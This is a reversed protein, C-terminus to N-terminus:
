DGWIVIKGDVYHWYDGTTTPENERYFYITAKDTMNYINPISDTNEIRYYEDSTGHYFISEISSCDRFSDSEIRRLGSGLVITKLSSCGEFASNSIKEINDPIVITELSTCGQFASNAINNLGAGIKIDGLNACLAFALLGIETVDDAIVYAGTKGAPYCLLATKDQNFLIGDDSKFHQNNENVYINELASCGYFSTSDISEVNEPITISTLSTCNRFAAGKIRTVSNPINISELSSCGLFLGGVITTIDCMLDISVLSSCGSFARDGIETVNSPIVLSELSECGSFASDGIKTVSSPIILSELSECSAFASAGIETVSNPISVSALSKCGIFSNEKISTITNPITVNKVGPSARYIYTGEFADQYYIVGDIAFLHPNEPDITISELSVCGSFAADSIEHVNKGISISELNVCNYFAWYPITTLPDPLAIAKIPCEFFCFQGISTLNKSLTVSELKSCGQFNASDMYTINDPVVVSTLGHCHAFTAVKLKTLGKGITLSTIKSCGEFASSDIETVNDPIVLNGQMYVCYYFASEGITKVTNSIVLSTIKSTGFAYDGIHVVGEPITFAEKRGGPYYILTTGDKSFLIGDSSKFFVNNSDVIYDTVSACGYFAMDGISIITKPIFVTTLGCNTFARDEIYKVPLGNYTEPIVLKGSISGLISNNKNYKKVSYCNEEEVLTFELKDLTPELSSDIISSSSKPSSSSSAVSSESHSNKSPEISSNDTDKDSSESSSITSTSEENNSKEISVITCSALSFVALLLASFLVKRKM